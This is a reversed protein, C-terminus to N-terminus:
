PYDTDEIVQWLFSYYCIWNQSLYLYIVLFPQSCPNGVQHRFLSPAGPKSPNLGFTPLHSKDLIDVRNTNHLHGSPSTETSNLESETM